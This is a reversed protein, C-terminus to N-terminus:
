IAQLSKLCNPFTVTGRCEPIVVHPAPHEIHEINPVLSNVALTLKLSM